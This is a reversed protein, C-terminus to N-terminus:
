YLVNEFIEGEVDICKAVRTLVHRTAQRYLTRHVTCHFLEIESVTGFPVCTGVLICNKSLIVLINVKGGPVSQIYIYTYISYVYMHINMCLLTNFAAECTMPQIREHLNMLMNRDCLDM